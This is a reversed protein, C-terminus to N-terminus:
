ANLVEMDANYSVDIDRRRQDFDKYQQLLENLKERNKAVEDDEVQRVSSEMGSQALAYSQRLAEDQEPTLM